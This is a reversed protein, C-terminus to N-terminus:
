WRGFGFIVWNCYVSFQAVGASIFELSQVDQATDLLGNYNFQQITTQNIYSNGEFTLRPYNNIQSSRGTIKLKTTSKQNQNGVLQTLPFGGVTRVPAVLITAAGNFRVGGLDYNSAADNNIRVSYNNYLDNEGQGFLQFEAEWYRFNIPNFGVSFDGGAGSNNGKALLAIETFPPYLVQGM